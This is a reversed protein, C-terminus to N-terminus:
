IWDGTIITPTPDPEQVYCGLDFTAGEPIINGPAAIEVWGAEGAIFSRLETIVGNSNDKLYVSYFNGAVTYVRTATVILPTPLTYTNAVLLTKANSIIATPSDGTYVPQDEGVPLPAPRDSTQKNAIMTYPWDLVVDNKEYQQDVWEGRWLMKEAIVADQASQSADVEAQTYKDLDTIDAEVHTHPSPPFESPKGTIQDWGITVNDQSFELDQLVAYIHDFEDNLAEIRFPGAIPFDTIRLVTTFRRISVTTSTVPTVLIITGGTPDGAGTINFNLEQVGGVEVYLDDKEWFQFPVVFTDEPTTGVQYEVYPDSM